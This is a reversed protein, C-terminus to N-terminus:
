VYRVQYNEALCKKLWVLNLRIIRLTEDLFKIFAGAGKKKWLAKLLHSYQALVNILHGIRMLLHFGKMANWHFSFPHEYQYGYRKEVLFGGNEIGWRYRAGLNCREHLDQWHLPDSSIWAFKKHRTIIQAMEDVEKWEEECVVVHVVQEKKMQDYVYCIDNVWIFRQRRNGWRRCHRNDQHADFDKLANFEEWVSRLSDDKLTIMFQWGYERCIQMVPGTAYLGDILLIVKLRPFFTKIRKALRKFGNTECDQKDRGEDGQMFDLFETALPLVMGNHFVLSAELTYCYYQSKEQIKRELCEEAWLFKYCHKQTGDIAIPVHKQILYNQFKKSRIFDRILGALIIELENIAIMSLFRNVTDHHPLSELDPFFIRMNDLFIPNTLEENAQRRSSKQLVFWFIGFLLIVAVKHKIKKPNRYDTVEALRILLFPLNRQWVKLYDKATEQRAQKEETETKYECKANDPSHHGRHSLGEVAQEQRLQAQARLRAKKQKKREAMLICRKEIRSM